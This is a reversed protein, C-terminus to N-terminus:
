SLSIGLFFLVVGPLAFYKIIFSGTSVGPLENAKWEANPGSLLQYSTIWFGPKAVLVGRQTMMHVPPPVPPLLASLGTAAPPSDGAPSWYHGVRPVCKGGQKDCGGAPECGGSAPRCAIHEVNDLPRDREVVSSPDHLKSSGVLINFTDLPANGIAIQYAAPGVIAAAVVFLATKAM